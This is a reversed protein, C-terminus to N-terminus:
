LKSISFGIFTAAVGALCSTSVYIAANVINNEKLMEFAEYSFASFTTFGGLIGVALFVKWESPIMEKAAFGYVIGILLCGLLNVTLTGFPFESSSKFTIYQSLVYRLVGGIFSGIGVALLTKM